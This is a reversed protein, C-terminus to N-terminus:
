CFIFDHFSVVVVFFTAMLAKKIDSIAQLDEESPGRMPAAPEEAFKVRNTKKPKQKVWLLWFLAFSM